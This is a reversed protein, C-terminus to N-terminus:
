WTGEYLESLIAPQEEEEALIVHCTECDDSITEGSASEHMGDHCRFCGSDDEHGLFSPYTGWTLNMSPFVNRSYIIGLEQSVADLDEDSVLVDRDAYQTKLAELIQAPPDTADDGIARLAGVAERRVYPIDRSLRGEALALDVAGELTEYIHTPRNHCDVCDMTRAPRTAVLEDLGEFDEVVYEEATGDQRELRVWPIEERSDDTSVYTVQNRPNTHWHIGRNAEDNVTGGGIRLLLATVLETNEEDNEYHRRTVLRDGHFKEPWHCQECTERAPRLNHVPTEIPRSFNGTAVALVQRAGSLKSRVFWDAGPGIHCKVCQVRSHPSRQYATWEPAMVEHCVLGCFENSESLHFAGFSAIGFLAVNVVTMALFMGLNKLHRPNEFDFRPLKGVPSSRALRWRGIPILVLGVFLVGPLAIYIFIGVYHNFPYGSLSLAVLALFLAGGITALLIGLAGVPDLAAQRLFLL